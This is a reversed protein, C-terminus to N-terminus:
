VSDFWLISSTDFARVRTIVFFVHGYRIRPIKVFTGADDKLTPIHSEYRCVHEPM